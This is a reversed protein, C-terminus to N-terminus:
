SRVFSGRQTSVGGKAITDARKESDTMGTGHRIQLYADIVKREDDTTWAGPDARHTDSVYNAIGRQLTGPAHGPRNVHEDLVLSVGYESTIYQNVGRTTGADSLTITADYFADIRTLAHEIQCIRVTNDHGARWFRYAWVAERLSTKAEASDLRKGALSLFGVPLKGLNTIVADIGFLVFYEQFAAQDRRKIRDM